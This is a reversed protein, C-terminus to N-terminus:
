YWCDKWGISYAITNFTLSLLPGIILLFFIEPWSLFIWPLMVIISALIYDIGDWPQFMAGPKKGVRRKVFSKIMDWVLAWFSLVSGFFVGNWFNRYFSSLRALNMVLGSHVLATLFIGCVIGWLVGAILGRYTKNKWLFTPSIPRSFRRIGPINKAVVPLANGIFAPLFILFIELLRTTM